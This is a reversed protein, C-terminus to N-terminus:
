RAKEQEQPSTARRPEGTLKWFEDTKMPDFALTWIEVIQGERVRGFLMYSAELEHAGRRTKVSCVLAMRDDSVLVDELAADYTDGSEGVQALYELVEEHGVHDGQWQNDATVHWVIDESWLAKLTEVDSDAVAQWSQHALRWNPHDIM